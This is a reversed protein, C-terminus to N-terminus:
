ATLSQFDGVFEGGQVRGGFALVQVGNRGGPALVASHGAREAGGNAPDAATSREYRPRPGVRWTWTRTDLLHSDGFILDDGGGEVDASNPDWGGYVMITAGDNLLAAAHGTRPSPAAGGCKPNSWVWRRGEGGCSSSSAAELVHVSDFCRSGDNGGFIVVRSSKGADSSSGDGVVVTASPPSSVLFFPPRAVRPKGHSLFPVVSVPPPRSRVCLAFTDHRVQPVFSPPSRRRHDEPHEVELSQHRTDGGLEAV